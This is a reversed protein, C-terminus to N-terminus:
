ATMHLPLLIPIPCKWLSTTGGAVAAMAETGINAKHTLGPERFHVQDDIVGPMLVMGEANIERCGAPGQLGNGIKDIRGDKVLLDKVEQKGENVITANKILVAPMFKYYANKIFYNKCNVCVIRFGRTM